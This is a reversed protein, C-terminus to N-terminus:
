SFSLMCPFSFFVCYNVHIIILVFVSGRNQVTFVFPSHEEQMRSPEDENQVM